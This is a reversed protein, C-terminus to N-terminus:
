VDYYIQYYMNLLFACKSKKGKGIIVLPSKANMLDESALKINKIDPFIMPPLPVSPKNVV